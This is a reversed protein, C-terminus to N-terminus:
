SARGTPSAPEDDAHHRLRVRYLWRVYATDDLTGNKTRFETAAVLTECVKACGPRRAAAASRSASSPAPRSGASARGPPRPPRPPGREGTDGLDHLHHRPRGAHHHRGAAQEVWSAVATPPPRSSSCTSTSSACSPPGTPSPSPRTRPRRPVPLPAPVGPSTPSSTWSSSRAASCRRRTVTSGATSSRPTSRASTSRRSSTPGSTSRPSRRSRATCARRPRERRRRVDRERHRPGHRRQRQGRAPARVRLVDGAHDPRPLRPRPHHLVSRHGADLEGLLEGQDYLQNSHTDWGGVSVGIVRTGLNANISDPRWRSTVSSAPPPSTPSTSPTSRRPWASPRRATPPWATAGPASGPPRTATPRCPRSPPRAGLAETPDSGWMGGQDPVATVKARQGLLHLPVSSSFTIGRMGSDFETVGDLYRGLWGSSRATSATGAMFTAMSTFHSLDNTPQGVGRVVAVRGTAYRARLKALRPHFGYGEAAPLLQAAPIALGGRLTQYRSRDTGSIPAFANLGDNGGGLMVMVLVGDSAAIPSGFAEKAWRTGSLTAAGTTALTAQLFRRRTVGRSARSRAARGPRVAAPPPGRLRPRADPCRRLGAPLRPVRAPAPRPEARDVLQPGGGQSADGMGRPRRPHHPLPRRHRLARVGPHRDGRVVPTQIGAFVGADNAQWRLYSGWGPGPGGPRPPSGTATRSGAPSTRRTSSSSAPARWGGSRIACAPRSGWPRWGRWSGSPPTACSRTAPPRAGSPRPASSRGCSGCSRCTTPGSGTPSRRWWPIPSRCRTPSTRSSSPPSSALRRPGSPERPPDRHAHGARGLQHAARRLAGQHRHRAPEVPVPLQAPRRQRQSRDVGQGHTIVDAETYNGQGM